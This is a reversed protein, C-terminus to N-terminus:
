AYTYDYFRFSFLLFASLWKKRHTRKPSHQFTGPAANKHVHLHHACSAWGSMQPCIVISHCIKTAKNASSSYGGGASGVPHAMFAHLMNKYRMFTMTGHPIEAKIGGRNGKKPIHEANSLV